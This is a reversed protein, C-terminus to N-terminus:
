GANEDAVVCFFRRGKGQKLAYEVVRKANKAAVRDVPRGLDLPRVRNGTTALGSAGADRDLRQSVSVPASDPAHTARGHEGRDEGKAEGAGRRTAWTQEGAENSSHLPRVEGARAEDAEVGRRGSASREVADSAAM